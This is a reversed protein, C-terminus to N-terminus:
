GEVWAGAMAPPEQEAWEVPSLASDRALDLSEPHRGTGRGPTEPDEGLFGSGHRPFPAFSCPAGPMGPPSWLRSQHAAFLMSM